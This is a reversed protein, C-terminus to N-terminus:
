YADKKEKIKQRRLQEKTIPDEEDDELDDDSSSVEWSDLGSYCATM